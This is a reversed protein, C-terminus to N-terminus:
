LNGLTTKYDGMAIMCIHKEVGVFVFVWVEDKMNVLRLIGSQKLPKADMPKSNALLSAPAMDSADKVERERFDAIDFAYRTGECEIWATKEENIVFKALHGNLRAYDFYDLDKINM